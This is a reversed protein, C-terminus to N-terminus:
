RQFDAIWNPEWSAGADASFAQELRFASGTGSVVFRVFVARGEFLEQNFFEGRGDHFGGILPQGLAGDRSNAWYIHWEQAEPHFLRLSLGQIHGAPGEVDLEGLNARGDWIPRVISTGEYEVWRDSATLPDLLRSLHAGWTGMEFDFGRQGDERESTVPPSAAM